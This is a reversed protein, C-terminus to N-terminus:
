SKGKVCGREDFVVEASRGKKAKYTYRTSSNRIKIADPKGLASEVDYQSMGILIRRDMIAERRQSANILNGCRDEFQGVVTPEKRKTKNGSTQPFEAEPLMPETMPEITGVNFPHIEQLSLADGPSCSLTTFTVHGTHDECRHVTQGAAWLPLCPLAALLFLHRRVLM